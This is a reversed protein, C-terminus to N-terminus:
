MDSIKLRKAFSDNDSPMSRKNTYLMVNNEENEEIEMERLEELIVQENAEDEEEYFEPFQPDIIDEDIDDEVPEDEEQYHEDFQPDIIDEDNVNEDANASINVDRYVISETEKIYGGKTTIIDGDKFGLSYSMPHGYGLSTNYDIWYRKNDFLSLPIKSDKETVMCCVSKNYRIHNSTVKVKHQPMELIKQFDEHKLFREAAKLPCGKIAQKFTAKRKKKNGPISTGGSSERPISKISYCKPSLFIAEHVIDDAIESKLLGFSGGRRGARNKDLVKFNSRDLHQSLFSKTFLDEHTWGKTKMVIELGLSDTDTYIMNVSEIHERSKMILEMYEPDTKIHELPFSAGSPKAFKYHYEYIQLKARQLVIAGCFIPAKLTISSKNKTVGYVDKGILRSGKFKPDSIAPNVNSAHYLKTHSNYKRDSQLTKGYLANCLLKYLTKLVPEDSHQMRKEICHMIYEKFLPKQSFSIVSHVKDVKVGIDIYFKLLKVDFSYECLNVHAAVLKQQGGKTGNITRTYESPNIEDTNILGLPLDDYLERLHDPITIDCKVVYGTTADDSTDIKRLFEINEFQEPNQLYKFNSYPMATTLMYAYLANYDLMCFFVDQLLKLYKEKMDVNNTKVLRKTLCVLGGRLMSEFDQYMDHNDLLDINTKGMKLAAKYVLSPGTLFNGPHLNFDGMIMQCFGVWIDGLLCVDSMLYYEHLDLLSKNGPERPKISDWVKEGHLYDEDTIPTESLIDYFEEKSPYEKVTKMQEKNKCLNYPYVQKRTLYQIVDEGFREKVRNVTIPLTLEPHSPDMKATKLAILESLPASIFSCTDIFSATKYKVNYYSHAGKPLIRIDKIRSSNSVMGSLLNPIDYSSGNHFYCVARKRKSTMQINCQRCCAGIYNGTKVKRETFSKGTTKNIRTKFEFTAFTDHCHHRHKSGKSSLRAFPTNCQLCHTAAKFDREDKETLYATREKTKEIESMKESIDTILKDIFTQSIDNEIHHTYGIDEGKNNLFLSGYSITKHKQILKNNKVPKGDVGMFQYQYIEEMDPDNVIAADDDDEPKLLGSETDLIVQLDPVESDRLMTHAIHTGPPPLNVNPPQTYTNFCHGKLLHSKLHNENQTLVFCYNCRQRNKNSAKDRFVTKMYMQFDPIYVCHDKSILLIHCIPTNSYKAVIKKSPARICSIHVDEKNDASTLNYVAIPVKNATEMRRWHHMTVGKEMTAKPFFVSTSVLANVTEASFASHNVSTRLETIVRKREEEDMQKRVNIFHSKLSYKVCYSHNPLPSVENPNDKLFVPNINIVKTKGLRGVPYPRFNNIKRTSHVRRGIYSHLCIYNGDSYQFTWGSGEM